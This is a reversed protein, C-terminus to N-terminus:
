TNFRYGLLNQGPYVWNLYVSDEFAMALLGIYTNIVLKATDTEFFTHGDALRPWWAYLNDMDDLLVNSDAYTLGTSDYDSKMILLYEFKGQASNDPDWKFNPDPLPGSGDDYEVICVNLRRPNAPESIDWVSGPFTGVGASSFLNERRFFQANSWNSSDIDFRIEVPIYDTSGLNSGFFDAGKAISGGFAEYNFDVGSMWQPTGIWEAYIEILSDGGPLSSSSRNESDIASNKESFPALPPDSLASFAFFLITCLILSVFSLSKKM